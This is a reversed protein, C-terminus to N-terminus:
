EDDETRPDTVRSGKPMHVCVWVFRQDPSTNRMAHVKEKPNVVFDGAKMKEWKGHGVLAEGEGAVVVFVHAAMPHSHPDEFVEGPNIWEVIASFDDDRYVSKLTHTANPDIHELAAFVRQTTTPQMAM